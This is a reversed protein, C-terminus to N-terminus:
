QAAAQGVASDGPEVDLYDRAVFLPQELRAFKAVAVLNFTRRGLIAYFEAWDEDTFSNTLNATM